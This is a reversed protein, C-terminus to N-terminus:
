RQKNLPIFKRLVSNVWNIDIPKPVYDDFGESIFMERVGSMVNATLAVVPVTKMYDDDDARILKLTEIGDLEPMMHDLFIVDYGKDYKLIDLCERGGKCTDVKISFTKSLLGEAVKLNVANDDVVLVRADPAQIKTESVETTTESFILKDAKKSIRQLINFSFKSGVGYTSEVNISGNMLTCLEKSIALGLGTGERAHSKHTDLQQFSVFLKSLDEKRIGIGSDTISIYLRVTDEDIVDGTVDILIYGTDTFKIANTIINYLIQRVRVEDGILADPINQDIKVKLEVPKDTLRIEMMRATENILHSLSYTVPVIEMSGSEMKSYDLIDNVIALLIKGSAQISETNERVQPSLEERLNLESMGCIANMPTRIEHSMNALFLMKSSNAREAEEAKEKMGNMYQTAYKVIIYLNLSSIIYCGCYIWFILLSDVSYLLEDKLFVSYFVFAILSIVVANIIQKRDMFITLGATMALYMFVTYSLTNLTCGILASAVVVSFYIGTIVIGERKILVTFIFTISIMIATIVMVTIGEENGFHIFAHVMHALMVVFYELLCLRVTNHYGFM